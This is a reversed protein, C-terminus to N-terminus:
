KQIFSELLFLKWAETHEVYKKNTKLKIKHIFLVHLHYLMWFTCFSIFHLAFRVAGLVGEGFAVAM